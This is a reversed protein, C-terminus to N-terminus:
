SIDLASSIFIRTSSIVDYFLVDEGAADTTLTPATGGVFEYSTGFSLTRSGTGDQVVRIRGRQGVKTNTANALTRNGGLTVTFDFGSSMDLAISAADTLTVEAMAGWVQDTSLVKDATNNRYQATTTEDLIAATGPGGTHQKLLKGTTSDFLAFRSDVSSAPGVVDGSGLGDAGKNGTREFVIAMVDADTPAGNSAVVTIPVTYYTTNDTITGSVTAELFETRDAVTFIRLHGRHATNTSDDWEAIVAGLSEANRGTKSILVNTASGLSANDVLVKGSGPDGGTAANWAYDLGTNPGTAGTAGDSGNAGPTGTPGRPPNISLITVRTYIEVEGSTGKAAALGGARAHEAHYSLEFVEDATLTIIGHGVALVEPNDVTYVARTNSSYVAKTTTTSKFRTRTLGSGWFPSETIILYSQPDDASGPLTITNSSLSAGTINDEVVTNLDRATWTTAVTNGGITSTAKQDEVIFSPMPPADAATVNDWPVWATGVYQYSINEDKVYAIWGCDEPPDYHIYGGVGDYELVDHLAYSFWAGSPTDDVIYRSGTAPATPPSSRREAVQFAAVTPSVFPPVHSDLNWGGGDSVLWFVEGRGNLTVTAHQMGVGNILQGSVTRIAVANSTGNHRVGVRWGNGVTIASPLTATLPGGSCDINILKGQDASTVTYNDASTVIPVTATPSGTLFGSTDLAGPINDHTVIEVDAADTIVVKYAATSVYVLTKTGSAAPYGGADCTVVVGLSVTLDADSFVERTNSTGADYFKVKAGSVPLDNADTVRFGPSFVKTSNVM